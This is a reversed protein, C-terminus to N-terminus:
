YYEGLPCHDERLKKYAFRRNDGDYSILGSIASLITTKGSGNAGLICVRENKEVDFSIDSAAIIDGYKCTLNKVSLLAM